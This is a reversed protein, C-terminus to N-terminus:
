RHRRRTGAPPPPPPHGGTRRGGGGGSWEDHWEGGGQQERQKRWVAGSGSGWSDWEGQSWGGNRDRRDYGGWGGGAGWEGDWEKWSGDQADGQGWGGWDKDRSRSGKQDGEGWGNDRRLDGGWGGGSWEDEAERRHRSGHQGERHRSHQQPQQQHQQQQPQQQQQAQHQQPQEWAPPPSPTSRQQAPQRVGGGSWEDADDSPQRAPAHPPAKDAQAHQMTAPRHQQVVVPIAAPQEAWMQAPQQQVYLKGDSLSVVPAQRYVVQQQPGAAALAAQLPLVQRLGSAAQPTHTVIRAGHVPDMVISTSPNGLPDRQSEPAAAPLTPQVGGGSWATAAASEWSTEQRAQVPQQALQQTPQQVPQQLHQRVQGQQLHATQDAQQREGVAASGASFVPPSQPEQRARPPSAQKPAPEPEPKSMLTIWLMLVDKYVDDRTKLLAKRAEMEERAFQEAVAADLTGPPRYVRKEMPQPRRQPSAQKAEVAAEAKEAAPAPEPSAPRPAQRPAAPKPQPHPAAAKPQPHPAAPKPQPPQTHAAPTPAHAAAPASAAAKGGPKAGAGSQAAVSAWSRAGGPRSPVAGAPKPVEAPAAKVVETRGMLGTGEGPTAPPMAQRIVAGPMSVGQEKELRTVEELSPLGQRQKMTVPFRLRPRGHQPNLEEDQANKHDEPRAHSHLFTCDRLTCSQHRVFFPCYKNAGFVARIQRGDSFAGDVCRLCVAADQQRQFTVHVTATAQTLSTRSIVLKAIAGYQGFYDRSRLVEERAASKPFGVAYVLTRQLVRLRSMERQRTDRHDGRRQQPAQRPQQAQPRQQERGQQKPRQRQQAKRAQPGPGSLAATPDYVARCGPCKPEDTEPCEDRLKHWCWVCIRFGCPCPVFDLDHSEIVDTCILCEESDSSGDDSLDCAKQTPPM